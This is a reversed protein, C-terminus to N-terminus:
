LVQCPLQPQRVERVQPLEEVHTEANPIKLKIISYPHPLKKSHPLKKLKALALNQNFNIIIRLKLQISNLKLPM